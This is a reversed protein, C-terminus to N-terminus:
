PMPTTLCRHVITAGCARAIRNNDTKRLRRIGSIGAKTLFHMALDSLGKETVVVDPKHKAIDQCLNQIYDEELKLLQARCLVAVQSAIQDLRGHHVDWVPSQVPACSVVGHKHCTLALQLKKSPCKTQSFANSMM